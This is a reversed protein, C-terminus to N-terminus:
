PATTLLTAGGRTNQTARAEVIVARIENVLARLASMEGATPPDSFATLAPTAISAAPVGGKLTALDTAIDRLIQTIHPIGGSGGPVMGSGGSAFNKAIAAM